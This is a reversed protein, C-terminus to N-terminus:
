ATAVPSTQKRGHRATLLKTSLGFLLMLGFAAAVGIGFDGWQFGPSQVITVVPAHAQVAADLTDPSRGDAPTLEQQRAALAADRTDPSRGDAISTGHSARTLSVVYSYWGDRPGYPSGAALAQPVTVAVLSAALALGVTANKLTHTTTFM